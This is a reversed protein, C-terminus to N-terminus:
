IKKDITPQPPLIKHTMDGKMLPGFDEMYTCLNFDGPIKAKLCNDYACFNKRLYYAIPATLDSNTDGFVM